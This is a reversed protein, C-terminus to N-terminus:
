VVDAVFFPAMYLTEMTERDVLSVISTLFGHGLITMMPRELLQHEIRLKKSTMMPRELLQHEIRLINIYAGGNVGGLRQLGAIM